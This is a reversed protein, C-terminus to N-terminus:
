LFHSIAVNVVRYSFTSLLMGWGLSFEESFCEDVQLFHSVVVNVIRFLVTFVANVERQLMASLLM